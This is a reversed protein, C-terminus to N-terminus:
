KSADEFSNHLTGVGVRTLYTVNITKNKPHVNPIYIDVMFGFKGLDKLDWTNDIMGLFVNSIDLRHHDSLKKPLPPRIQVSFLKQKTPIAYLTEIYQCERPDWPVGWDQSALYFKNM